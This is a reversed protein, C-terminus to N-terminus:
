CCYFKLYKSTSFFLITSCCKRYGNCGNSDIDLSPHAEEQFITAHVPLLQTRLRPHVPWIPHFPM